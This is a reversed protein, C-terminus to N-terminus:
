TRAVLIALHPPRVAPRTIDYVFVFADAFRIYPLALGTFREEGSTDWMQSAHTLSGAAGGM